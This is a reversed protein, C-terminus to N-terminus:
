RRLLLMPLARTVAEAPDGDLGHLGALMRLILRSYLPHARRYADLAERREDVSLERWDRIEAEDRVRAEILGGALVNRYWHSEEGWMPSVVLERRERDETLAEVPTRYVRGSRRGRHVLVVVPAPSLGRLLWRTGRRDLAAPARMARGIV